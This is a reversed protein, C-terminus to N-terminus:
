KIPGASNKEIVFALRTKSDLVREEDLTVSSLLKNKMWDEEYFLLHEVRKLDQVCTVINDVISFFTDRVETFNPEYSITEEDM